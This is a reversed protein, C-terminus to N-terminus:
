LCMHFRASRKCLPCEASRLLWLDICPRHFTHGCSVLHRVSEGTNLTNLCIACEPEVEAAGEAFTDTIDAATSAGDTNGDYTRFGARLRCGNYSAEGPLAKIEAPSLGASDPLPSLANYGDISSVRGWRALVDADEMLRLDTERKRVRRELVLSAVGLTAHVLISAYCLSLWAWVFWLHADSPMCDSSSRHIILIWHTGLFTWLVFAPVVGLWLFVVLARSPLTKQRLDLLFEGANSTQSNRDDPVFRAGMHHLLRFGVVFAYSGLLWKHIPRRCVVFSEWEIGLDICSYILSFLLVGDNYNGGVQVM